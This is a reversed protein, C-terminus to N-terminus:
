LSCTGVHVDHDIDGASVRLTAHKQGPGGNLGNGPQHVASRALREIDGEAVRSDAASQYEARCTGIVALAAQRDAEGAVARGRREPNGSFEASRARIVAVRDHRCDVVDTACLKSRFGHHHANALVRLRQTRGFSVAKQGGQPRDITAPL